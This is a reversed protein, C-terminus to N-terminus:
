KRYEFRSLKSEVPGYLETAMGMKECCFCIAEYQARKETWNRKRDRLITKFRDLRECMEDHTSWKANKSNRNCIAWKLRSVAQRTDGMKKAADNMERHAKLLSESLSSDLRELYDDDDDSNTRERDMLADTDDLPPDDRRSQVPPPSDVQEILVCDDEDSTLGEIDRRDVEELIPSSHAVPVPPPSPPFLERKSCSAKQPPPTPSFHDPVEDCYLDELTPEYMGMRHCLGADSQTQAKMARAPFSEEQSIPSTVPRYDNEKELLETVRRHHDKLESQGRIINMVRATTFELTQDNYTFPDRYDRDVARNLEDLERATRQFLARHLEEKRESEERIIRSQKLTVIKMKCEPLFARNVGSEWRQVYIISQIRAQESEYQKPYLSARWQEDTLEFKFEPSITMRDRNRIFKKRINIQNAM